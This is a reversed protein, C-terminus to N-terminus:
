HPGPSGRSREDGRVIDVRLETWGDVQAYRVRVDHRGGTVPAHDVESEHPTWNDIVLRGDVWVRVADDSITRLTYDGPPLDLTTRAELAWHDGPLDPIAPRYWMYDLRPERRELFPSGAFAADAPARRATDVQTWRFYRVNWRATPEFRGYGFRRPEGAAQWVGRPSLTAEGRYELELNWDTADGPEPTVRITDGTRGSRRSVTRIGQQQVLRWTGPPGLVALDLPVAHTSDVPWLKPSRWDYPGWEDV